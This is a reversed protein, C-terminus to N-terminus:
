KEGLCHREIELVFDVLPIADEYFEDKTYVNVREFEQTFLYDEKCGASVFVPVNYGRQQVLWLQQQETLLFNM